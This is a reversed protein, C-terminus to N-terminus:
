DIRHPALKISDQYMGLMTISGEYRDEGNASFDFNYTRALCYRGRSDKVVRVRKLAVSQDLLNLDLSQCYSAAARLAREKVERAKLWYWVGLAVLATLAISRLQM